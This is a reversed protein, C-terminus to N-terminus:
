WKKKEAVIFGGKEKPANNFMLNRFDDDCSDTKDFVTRTQSERALGFEKDLVMKDLEVIFDDMISKAQLSIKELDLIKNKEKTM